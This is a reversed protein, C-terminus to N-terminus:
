QIIRMDGDQTIRIEDLQTIRFNGDGGSGGAQIQCWLFLIMIARQEETLCM